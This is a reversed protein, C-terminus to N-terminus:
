GPLPGGSAAAGRSTQTRIQAGSGVKSCSRTCRRTTSGAGAMPQARRPLGVSACDRAAIIREADRLARFPPTVPATSNPTIGTEM